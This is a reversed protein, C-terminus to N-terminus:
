SFDHYYWISLRYSSVIPPDGLGEVIQRRNRLQVCIVLDIVPNPERLIMFNGMGRQALVQFTSDGPDVYRRKKRWLSRLNYVCGKPCDGAVKYYVAEDDVPQDPTTQTLEQRRRQLKDQNGKKIAKSQQISNLIGVLAIYTLFESLNITDQLFGTQFFCIAQSYALLLAQKAELYRIGRKVTDKNNEKVKEDRLLAYLGPHENLTPNCIGVAVRETSDVFPKGNVNQIWVDGKSGSDYVFYGEEHKIGPDLM